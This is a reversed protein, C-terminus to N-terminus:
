PHPIGLEGVMERLFMMIDSGSKKDDRGTFGNEGVM